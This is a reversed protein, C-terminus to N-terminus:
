SECMRSERVCSLVLRCILGALHLTLLLALVPKALQVMQRCVHAGQVARASCLTMLATAHVLWDAQHLQSAFVAACLGLWGGVWVNVWGVYL